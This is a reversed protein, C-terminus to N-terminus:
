RTPYLKEPEKVTFNISFPINERQELNTLPLNVNSLFSSDELTKKFTNLAVRTRAVGVMYINGELGTISVSSVTIGDTVTKQLETLLISWNPITTIIQSTAQTLSNLNQAQAELKGAGEPVPATSLNEVQSSTRQQISVLLLWSATYVAGFFIGLIISLTLLFKSFATARQYEYARETGIPMLSILKDEARPLVGRVAAGLSVLWKGGDPKKLEPNAYKELAQGETLKLIKSIPGNDAEFFSITRKIEAEVATAPVYELPLIRSFRLHKNQIIYTYTANSTQESILIATEPLDLVRLLSFPHFEVAVTKLGAKLLSNILQNVATRPIAALFVENKDKAGLKEWDLYVEDKKIPLQYESILHISDDLKEKSIAAPFSFIRNFVLDMPLSLIIYHIKVPPKKLLNQLATVFAKEDVVTGNKITNGPLPEEVLFKIQQGLKKKNTVLLALRLFNDSVELGAIAEERTFISLIDM